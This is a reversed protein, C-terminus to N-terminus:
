CWSGNPLVVCTPEVAPGAREPLTWTCTPANRCIASLAPISRDETAAIAPWPSCTVDAGCTSDAVNAANSCAAGLAKAWRAPAM